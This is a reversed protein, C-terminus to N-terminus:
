VSHHAEDFIILNFDALRVFAHILADLFCRGTSVIVDHEDLIKEWQKLNWLDVTLEGFIRAVRLDTNKEIVTHPDSEATLRLCLFVV